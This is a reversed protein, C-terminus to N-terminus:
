VKRLITANAKDLIIYKENDKTKLFSDITKMWSLVNDYGEFNIIQIACKIKGDVTHQANIHCDTEHVLVVNQPVYILAQVEESCGEVHGRTVFVEHMSPQQWKFGEGCIPCTPFPFTNRKNYIQYKLKMRLLTLSNM